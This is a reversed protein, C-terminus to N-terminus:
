TQLAPEFEGKVFGSDGQMFLFVKVYPPTETVYEITNGEIFRGTFAYGDGETGPYYGMGDGQAGWCAILGYEDVLTDMVPRWPDSSSFPDGVLQAMKNETLRLSAVVAMAVPNTMSLRLGALQGVEAFPITVASWLGNTGNVATRELVGCPSEDDWSFGEDRVNRSSRNPNGPRRARDALADRNRQLIQDISLADRAGADVDATVVYAGESSDLDVSIRGLQVVVDSGEFGRIRVNTGVDLDTRALDDPCGRFSLSGVAKATYHVSLYTRAAKRGESKSVSPGLDLYVFHPIRSPDYSPNAGTVLGAADYRSPMVWGKVAMPLRLPTLDVAADAQGFIANWTQPGISGDVQIDAARQADRVAEVWASSQVGTVALKKGFGLARLKEQADTVGTGSDTGADTSGLNIYQDPDSNPYPPPVLLRLGPYFVNAWGGGGPSVGRCFVGDVRSDQDVVVDFDVGPNGWAVTAHVTELDAKLTLRFEDDAVQTLTWQRGDDTWAEALVNQVAQWVKEDRAGRYRTMIGTTTTPVPKFPASILGNLLRPVLTGVDVPEQYPVPEIAQFMAAWMPGHAEFVYTESGGSGQSGAAFTRATSHLFGSWKRDVEGTVDDVIGIVVPADDRLFTLDDAGRADWPDLQPMEFMATKDGWPAEKTWNRVLTPAGRFYTIDVGDVWIHAYGVVTESTVYDVGRQHTPQAATLEPAPYKQSLVPVAVDLDVAPTLVLYLLDEVTVEDFITSLPEGEIVLSEAHATATATATADTLSLDGGVSLTEPHATATATAPADDLALAGGSTSDWTATGSDWTVTSDDWLAAM